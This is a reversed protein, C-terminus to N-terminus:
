PSLELYIMPYGSHGFIIIKNHATSRNNGALPNLGAINSYFIALYGSDPFPNSRSPQLFTTSAEPFSTKGPIM